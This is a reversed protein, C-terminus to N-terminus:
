QPNSSQHNFGHCPPYARSDYSNFRKLTEEHQARQCDEARQWGDDLERIKELAKHCTNWAEAHAAVVAPLTSKILGLEREFQAAADGLSHLRALSDQILLSAPTSPPQGITAAEDNLKLLGDNIKRVVAVLNHARDAKYREEDSVPLSPTSARGAVTMRQLGVVLDENMKEQKALAIRDRQALNAEDTAHQALAKATVLRGPQGGDM